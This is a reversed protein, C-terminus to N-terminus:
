KALMKGVNPQYKTLIQDINQRYKLQCKLMTWVISHGFSHRPLCVQCVQGIARELLHRLVAVRELVSQGVTFMWCNFMIIMQNIKDVSVIFIAIHYLLPQTVTLLGNPHPCGGEIFVCHVIIDRCRCKKKESKKWSQKSQFSGHELEPEKSNDFKKEASSDTCLISVYKHSWSCTLPRCTEISWGWTLGPVSETQIWVLGWYVIRVRCDVSIFSLNSSLQSVRPSSSFFNFFYLAFNLITSFLFLHSCFIYTDDKRYSDWAIWGTYENIVSEEQFM